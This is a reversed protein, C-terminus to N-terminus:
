EAVVFATIKELYVAFTSENKLTFFKYEGEAITYTIGTDDKVGEVPVEEGDATAKVYLKINSPDWPYQADAPYKAMNADVRVSAIDRKAATLSSIYSGNKKMQIGDGKGFNAVNLISYDYGNITFTTAEAPYSTPVDELSIVMDDGVPAPPTPPTVQGKEHSVYMGVLQNMGKYSTKYAVITIKDGEEVGLTAFAGNGKSGKWGTSVGYVYITGTEDVLDFNGYNTLDWAKTKSDLLSKEPKTVTGTIKIYNKPDNKDDDALADAEAVTVTTAPKVGEIVGNTLEITGNYEDRNGIITVIDGAKLTSYDAFNTAKYVYTEASFDKFHFNGKSADDITTVIGSLRYVTSSKPAANFEAVSVELIAGKQSLTAQATYDKKGDTTSFTLTTSRDGADNQAALFSVTAKEGVTKVGTVSLWSKADDPVVVSVGNGKCTLSAEFDGGEIPLAELKAGNFVLSDCKILSPNHEVVFATYQVTEPTTGGYIMLNGEIVLEDGVAFANPDTFKKGDFWYARYVELWNDKGYTGDDSLFFTANGYQGTDLEQIRCVVGKVRRVQSGDPFQKCVEIAEAVSIPKLEVKEALQKVIISQSKGACVIKVTNENNSLAKGATFTVTTEGASGSAPSITLWQPIENISWSDTATVTITKSGGNTPIGVYSSSVQIEKLVTPGEKACGIVLACVAAFASLIKVIKM